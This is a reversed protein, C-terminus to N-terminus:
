ICERGRERYVEVFREGVVGSLTTQSSVQTFVSVSSRAFESIRKMVLAEESVVTSNAAEHGM